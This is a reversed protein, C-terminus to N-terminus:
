LKVRHCIDRMFSSPNKKNKQKEKEKPDNIGGRKYFREAAGDGVASERCGAM